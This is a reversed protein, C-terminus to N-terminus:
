GRHPRQRRKPHADIVTIRYPVPQEIVGLKALRAAERERDQAAFKAVELREAAEAEARNTFWRISGGFLHVGYRGGHFIM